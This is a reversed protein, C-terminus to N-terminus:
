KIRIREQERRIIQVDIYNINVSDFLLFLIDNINVHCLIIKFIM